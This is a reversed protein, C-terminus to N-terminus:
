GQNGEIDSGGNAVAYKFYDEPPLAESFLFGQAKECGISRLFQASQMTEVGEVCLPLGLERSLARVGRMVTRAGTDDDLDIVLSRDIKLESLPLRYIEVLSSYGSGFDDLSVDIDKIRLRTLIDAASRGNEMAAQETIELVLLTPDLQESDVLEAIKDPLSLDTLQHPSINIAVPLRLNKKEWAKLQGIALRLLKETLLSMLGTEEIMPLFDGPFVLGRQPHNWRVLGEAGVVPFDSGQQLDLKPQYYLVFQDEEIAQLLSEATIKMSGDDQSERLSNELEVISVPKQLTAAMNLGMMRGYRQATSIVRQDEGSILLISARCDRESLDRLIEVGDVGPMNLDLLIVTPDSAEVAKSYTNRCGAEAIEFNLDEAVAHFIERIEADDDIILLRDTAAETHSRNM